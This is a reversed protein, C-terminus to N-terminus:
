CLPAILRLFGDVLWKGFTVRLDEPKRQRSKAQTDLYDAKLARLLSSRYFVTNNEFQLFLSRYDLNVTGVAGVKDDVLCAKAHLFGPTYEYIKVGAELLVPYFSRTMRYVIKKDPIGPTIIRM